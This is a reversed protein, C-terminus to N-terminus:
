LNRADAMQPDLIKKFQQHWEDIYWENLFEEALGILRLKKLSPLSRLGDPVHTISSMNDLYLVEVTQIAGGEIILQQVEPMNRLLLTRLFPLKDAPAVMIMGNTSRVKNLSLHNLQNLHEALLKLPDESFRCLTLEVHKLNNGHHPFLSRLTGEALSGIIILKQIKTSTPEMTAIDITEELDSASFLLSCLRPMKFLSVFLDRCHAPKVNDMSLSSLQEVKELQKGLENSAEVTEIIQLEELGSLGNPAAV